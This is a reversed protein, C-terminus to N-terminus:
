RRNFLLVGFGFLLGIALQESRQVAVNPQVASDYTSV